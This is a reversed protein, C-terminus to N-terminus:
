TRIREVPDLIQMENLLEALVPEFTALLEPEPWIRLNSDLLLIAARAAGNLLRIAMELDDQQQHIRPRAQQLIDAAEIAFHTIDAPLQCLMEQGSLERGADRLAAFAAIAAGDEDALRLLQQRIADLRSAAEEMTVQEKTDEQHKINLRVCVQGLSCALAASAGITAGAMAHNQNSIHTSLQRVSTETM